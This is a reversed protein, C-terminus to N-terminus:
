FPRKVPKDYIGFIQEIQIQYNVVPKNTVPDIMPDGVKKGAATQESTPSKFSPQEQGRLSAYLVKGEMSPPNEDDWADGDAIVGAPILYIKQYMEAMKASKTADGNVRTVHNTKFKVGDFELMEDGVQKPAQDVIEWELVSMPNGTSSPKNTQKLCRIAYADKPFFKKFNWLSSGESSKIQVM